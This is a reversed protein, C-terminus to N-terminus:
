RTCTCVQRTSRELTRLSARLRSIEIEQEKIKDEARKVEVQLAEQSRRNAEKAITDQLKKKLRSIEQQYKMHSFGTITREEAENIHAHV